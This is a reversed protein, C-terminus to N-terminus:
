RWSSVASSLASSGGKLSELEYGQVDLKILDPRAFLTGATVADITTMPLSLSPSAHKEEETLVSSASGLEYFGVADRKSSGVLVTELTVRECEALVRELERRRASQPEIMLVQASPFIRKCLRTWEGRYAGVDIVVKPDFGNRKMNELSAEMSPVGLARKIRHKIREPVCAKFGRLVGAALPM